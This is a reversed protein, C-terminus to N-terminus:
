VIVTLMKKWDQGNKTATKYIRCAKIFTRINFQEFSNMRNEMEKLVVEKENMPMSKELNSMIGWIYECIEKRSMQLDVVFTRSKVADDIKDATYNSIFIIQGNFEFETDYGDPMRSSQWSVKRVDYSDLASKLINISTGNDFVDDCDDFCIMQERHDHLVQYMGLPTSHGKITIYDLGEKWGHDHLRQRVLHTKGIGSLGTILASPSIGNAVMDVLTGVHEFRELPSLLEINPKIIGDSSGKGSIAYIKKKGIKHDLIISEEAIMDNLITYVSAVSIKGERAIDDVTFTRPQSSIIKRIKNKDVRAGGM